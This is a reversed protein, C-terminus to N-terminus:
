GGILKILDIYKLREDNLIEYPLYSDPNITNREKQVQEIVQKLQQPRKVYDESRRYLGICSVIVICPVVWIWKDIKTRRLVRVCLLLVLALGLYAYREARMIGVGYQARGIAVILYYFIIQLILFVSWKDHLLYKLNKRMRWIGIVFGVFVLVIRIVEFKDFPMFLRGIVTNIIALGMVEVVQLAWSLSYEIKTGDTAIYKYFLFVMISMMIVAFGLKFIKKKKYDVGYVLFTAPLSGLALASTFTSLWLNISRHKRKWIAYIALLVFLASISITQGSTWLVVETWNTNITFLLAAMAALDARGSTAKAVKYILLVVLFHMITSVMLYAPFFLHFTDWELKLLVRFLYNIHDSLPASMVSWFPRNAMMFWDLDDQHFYMNQVGWVYLIVLLALSIYVWWKEIIKSM